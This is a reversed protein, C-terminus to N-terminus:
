NWEREGFETDSDERRGDVRHCGDVPCKWIVRNRKKRENDTLSDWRPYPKIEPRMLAGVHVPCKMRASGRSRNSLDEHERPAM